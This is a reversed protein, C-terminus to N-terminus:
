SLGAVAGRCDVSSLVLLHDPLQAQGHQGRDGDPGAALADGTVHLRLLATVNGFM